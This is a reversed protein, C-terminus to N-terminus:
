NQNYTNMVDIFSKGEAWEVLASVTRNVAEEVASRSDKDFPALVHDVVKWGYQPRGIGIRIRKFKDTGLLGIISKMGRHGGASGKQRLRIRGPELDLEDYIVVLDESSIGYYSMLQLVAEGSNNMYTYPKVLLIREGQHRWITYDASFKQDTMQIQQLDMLSDVATFGINHRTGDYRDGPNGLGVIMKM